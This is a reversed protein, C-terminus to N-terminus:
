TKTKPTKTKSSKATKKRMQSPLTSRIGKHFLYLSSSPISPVVLLYINMILTGRNFKQFVHTDLQNSIDDPYIVFTDTVAFALTLFKFIKM